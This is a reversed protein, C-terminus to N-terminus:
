SFTPNGLKVVAPGFQTLALVAPDNPFATQLQQIGATTPTLSATSSFPAGATRNRQFNTSGFFWIKGRKIPGGVTGGFQNQVYQPLVPKTCNDTAPNQHPLCFGFLPSKEQNQLSDFHNG